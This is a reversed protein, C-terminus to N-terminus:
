FNGAVEIMIVIVAVAMKHKDPLKLKKEYSWFM